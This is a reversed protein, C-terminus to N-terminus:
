AAIHERRKWALDEDYPTGSELCAHHIEVWGNAPRRIRQRRTMNSTRPEYHCTRAGRSRELSCFASQDLADALRRNHSHRAMVLRAEGSARTVPSNGPYDRRSKASACRNPDNGFQRQVRAGLVM